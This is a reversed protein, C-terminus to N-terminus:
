EGEPLETWVRCTAPLAEAAEVATDEAEFVGVVAAGTGSLVAHGAGADLLAERAARIEPHTAEVPGQFDNTVEARWRVLDNSVVAAALDPRSGDDPTISAFAEATSVHIDPVAVVLWFPCRYPQGDPDLLPDLHEGRGTGYAPVGDLFFPVDSGLGLALAHLDAEPVDLSWLGTLLRLAAAADSSGGGLGAGYPVRKELHLAAGLAPNGAWQRLALAARVVLNSGDTPLGPDTTTLVLEDARRGSLRDAWGLPLFVTSLDHYGDPRRRLVYLGLNVKAPALRAPM